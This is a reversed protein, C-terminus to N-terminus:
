WMIVRITVVGYLDDDEHQDEFYFEEEGAEDLSTRSPSCGAGRLVEDSGSLTVRASSSVSPRDVPNRLTLSDRELGDETPYEIEMAFETVNGLTSDVWAEFATDPETGPILLTPESQNRTIVSGDDDDDGGPGVCAAIERLMGEEQATALVDDGQTRLEELQRDGSDTWPAIDVAQMGLVLALALVLISIVAELAYGQARDGRETWARM